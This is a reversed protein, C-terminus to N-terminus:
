PLYKKLLYQLATVLITTIIAVKLALINVTNKVGGINKNLEEFKKNFNLQLKLIAEKLHPIENRMLKQIDTKLGGIELLCTGMQTEVRVLREGVQDIQKNEKNNM